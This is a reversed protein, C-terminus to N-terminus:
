TALQPTTRAQDVTEKDRCFRKLTMVFLVAQRALGHHRIDFDISPNEFVSFLELLWKFVLVFQTSDNPYNNLKNNTNDIIDDTPRFLTQRLVAQTYIWHKANVAYIHPCMCTLTYAHLRTLMYARLSDVRLMPNRGVRTANHLIM